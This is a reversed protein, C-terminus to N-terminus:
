LLPLQLACLKSKSGLSQRDYKHDKVSNVMEEQARKMAFKRGLFHFTFLKKVEENARSSSICPM